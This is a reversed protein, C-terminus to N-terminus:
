RQLTALAQLAGPPRDAPDRATLARVLARLDAPVADGPDLFPTTAKGRMVEALDTGPWARAGILLEHLVQGAGYLDWARPDGADDAIWEPPAYAFTGVRVGLASLPEMAPDLALGFDVLVSRGSTEVIVNGPKVDRHAVGAGHCHALASLLDRAVSRVRDPPLGGSKIWFGAHRGRVFAMELWVPDRDLVVREIRVISPHHLRMLVAGERELRRVSQPGLKGSRLVKIAAEREGQRCRFVMAVGGVGLREVVVWDGIRTPVLEDARRVAPLPSTASV